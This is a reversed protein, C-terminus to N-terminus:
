PLAFAVVSDGLKTGMKGHGGAAIVVFQKGNEHLRYTMPTAQGGAPLRGKWLERGSATDFARLYNDMAAGIFTLGSGTTMPGGMNPTVLNFSIGLPAVDHTTGLPVQWLIKGTALEVAVLTGWPPPSCPMGIKSILADRWMGYPTGIMRGYEGKGSKRAAAFQDRPILKVLFALQTTNLVVVGREADVSVSGWNTGGALGPYQISPKFGPPTFIGESRSGEIQAECSKRDWRTLGWATVKQPVLLPPLTPYPQTPSTQEGPVDSQPVPREEVPFLPEGTERNLIFMSGRKTAQVLAPIERGDRRITTLTPQAPVDYDWLDHHV